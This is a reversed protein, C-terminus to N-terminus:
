LSKKMVIQWQNNFLEYMRCLEAMPIRTMLDNYSCRPQTSHFDTGSMRMKDFDYLVTCPFPFETFYKFTVPCFDPISVGQSTIM